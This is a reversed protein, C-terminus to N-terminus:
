LCEARMWEFGRSQLTANTRLSISLSSPPTITTLDLIWRGDFRMAGLTVYDGDTRFDILAKWRWPRGACPRWFTGFSSNNPLSAMTTMCELGHCWFTKNPYMTEMIWRSARHVPAGMTEFAIDGITGAGSMTMVLAPGITTQVYCGGGSDGELSFQGSPHHLGLNYSSVGHIVGTGTRLTGSPGNITARGYGYCTVQQNFFKLPDAPEWLRWFGTASGNMVFPASTKLLAQDLDPHIAVSAVTRQQSGMNLTNGTAAGCHKATLVWSNALLTGSCRGSGTLVEVQGSNEPNIPTGNNIEGAVLDVDGEGAEPMPECAGVMVAVWTVVVARRELKM